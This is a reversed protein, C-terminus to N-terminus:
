LSRFRFLTSQLSSSLFIFYSLHSVSNPLFFHSSFLPFSVPTLSTFSLIFTINSFPLLFHSLSLSSSLFLLFPLIFTVSLSSPLSFLNHFSSLSLLSSSRFRSPFVSPFYYSPSFSLCPPLSMGNLLFSCLSSLRSLTNYSLYLFNQLFSFPSTYLSIYLCSFLSSYLPFHLFSTLLLSYILM